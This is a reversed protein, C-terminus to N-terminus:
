LADEEYDDVEDDSFKSEFSDIINFTELIDLTELEEKFEELIDEGASLILETEGSSATHFDFIAPSMIEVGYDELTECLSDFLTESEIVNIIYIGQATM